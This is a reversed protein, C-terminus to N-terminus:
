EPVWIMLWSGPHGMAYSYPNRGAPSSIAAPIRRLGELFDREVVRFESMHPRIVICQEDTVMRMFFNLIEDPKRNAV